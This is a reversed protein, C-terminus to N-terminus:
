HSFFMFFNLVSFLHKSLINPNQMKNKKEKIFPVIEFTFPCCWFCFFFVTPFIVEIKFCYLM